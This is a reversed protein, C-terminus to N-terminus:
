KAITIKKTIIMNNNIINMMYIGDSIDKTNVTSETSILVLKGFVDFLEVSEFEGEINLVDKVPNPYVLINSTFDNVSTSGSLQITITTICGNVDTVTCTYTGAGLNIATASTQGDSWLYTYPPNGGMVSVTAEGDLLGSGSPNISTSSVIIEDPQIITAVAYSFCGNADSIQCMYQGASLNTALSNSQGNSWDFSYPPTSGSVILDISGDNSGYCSVDNVISTFSPANSNDMGVGVINSISCGNADTVDISYVGANLGTATPSSQGNSWQYSYPSTGGTAQFTASGDAAYCTAPSSQPSSLSLSACPDTGMVEFPTKIENFNSFNASPGGAIINGNVDAVTYSGNGYTCCIGDGYSDYINFTYCMGPTLMVNVTTQPSSNTLSGASASALINGNDDVLEWSTENGYQDTTIDITANGIAVNSLIAPAGMSYNAFTTSASNNSANQDTNGNPNSCTVTLTNSGAPIYTYNPLTVITGQGPALNGVWPFIISSGGNIQYSIDLTNLNINGYNKLEVEIGKSVDNCINDKASAGVLYADYSNTFLLQPYIETGSLIEQNGEAVFAVVALNTPDLMVGNIDTPMSWTYQNSYLSGQSIDGIVQGWTGPTMMHRLMHNHNYQGNALIAGPNNSAGTQPGEVNNQVVAITLRNSSISNQSGTYYVEVDVTLTNTSMDINAQLGVNVPSSQSLLQTSASSWDSRSMATGGNQSMSFQHRNVTGAPYGSLNSQGAINSGMPDVRFDPEGASPTAFGGTHINILFVDNPNNDHLQQGILHGAPCWTCHIGTFEELIINKNEPSTSVFSQSSSTITGVSLILFLIKKM